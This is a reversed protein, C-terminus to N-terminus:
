TARLGIPGGSSQKSYKANFTYLQTNMMVAVQVVAAITLKRKFDTVELDKHDWKDDKMTGTVGPRAGKNFTRTPLVSRLPKVLVEEKTYHM